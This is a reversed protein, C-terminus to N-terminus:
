GKTEHAKERPNFVFISQRINKQDGIESGKIQLTYKSPDEIIIENM